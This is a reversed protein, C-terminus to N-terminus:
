LCDRSSTSCSSANMPRSRAVRSRLPQSREGAVPSTRLSRRNSRITEAAYSIGRRKWLRQLFMADSENHQMIFEREPYAQSVRSMDIDFANALIPNIARWESLLAASLEIENTNRFVRTNVRQDMLALADRVVLQYTALGGDSQGAAAQAVIGCVARLDGRDTVFQLEVPLAIFEKLPLDARTSICLLRYELGGCLSEHGTVRKVLVVDDLVRRKHSLRLRIPRDAESLGAFAAALDRLDM